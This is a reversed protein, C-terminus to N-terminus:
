ALHDFTSRQLWPVVQDVPMQVMQVLLDLYFHDKRRPVQFRHLEEWTIYSKRVTGQHYLLWAGHMLFMSGHTLSLIPFIYHIGGSIYRKCRAHQHPLIGGFDFRKSDVSEKTEVAAGFHRYRFTFDSVSKGTRFTGAQHADVIRECVASIGLFTVAESFYKQCLRGDSHVPSM